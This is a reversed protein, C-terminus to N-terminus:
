NKKAFGVATSNYVEVPTPLQPHVMKQLTTRFSVAEKTNNFLTGCEAESASAIVNRM